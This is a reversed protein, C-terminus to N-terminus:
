QCLTSSHAFVRRMPTVLRGWASPCSGSETHAQWSQLGGCKRSRQGRRDLTNGLDAAELLGCLFGDFRQLVVQAEALAQRHGLVDTQWHEFFTFDHPESIRWFERGAAVPAYVPADVYGLEDRWAQNTFDAALAHGTLIENHTLLKQGGVVAAYPVASLLRKGRNVADFYRQPYANCFYADRGAARLREFSVGKRLSPGFARMRDPAM